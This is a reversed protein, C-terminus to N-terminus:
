RLSPRHGNVYLALHLRDSVGLKRFVSTLHAKVTKESVHLQHAIEKNSSGGGIQQVIEKERPTLVDLSPDAKPLSRNRQQETLSVLTDLLHSIVKRGVWVEGKQVMKVAKALLMPDMEMSCYGKAGAELMSTGETETPTTTLLITRTSPSIKQLGSLGDLGHLGPMSLDLLLIVPKLAALKQEVMSRDIAEYLVAIKQLAQVWQARRTSVDSALLIKLVTSGHGSVM